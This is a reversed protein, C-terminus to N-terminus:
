YIGPIVRAKRGAYTAYAAGFLGLLHIEEKRIRRHILFVSVLLSIWAFVSGFLLSFGLKGLLLSAYRPHRVVAFPGRTLLQRSTPDCRFYGALCTDTWALGATASVHLVLGPIQLSSQRLAPTLHWHGYDLFVTLEGLTLITAWKVTTPDYSLGSAERLTERAEFLRLFRLEYLSLAVTCVFFSAAFFDLDAWPANGWHRLCLFAVVPYAFPVLLKLGVSRGDSRPFGRVVRM